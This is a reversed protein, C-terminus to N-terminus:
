NDILMDGNTNCYYLRMKIIIGGFLPQKINGVGFFGVKLTHLVLCGYGGSFVTWHKGQFV